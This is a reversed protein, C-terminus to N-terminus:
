GSARDSGVVATVRTTVHVRNAPSQTQVVVCTHYNKPAESGDHGPLTHDPLRVQTVGIPSDATLLIAADKWVVRIDSDRPEITVDGEFGLHWRLMLIETAEGQLAVDDTVTMTDVNWVVNRDWRALGDYCAAGDVSVDGGTEDLRHVTIPAVGGRRQWGPQWVDHGPDVAADPMVTGIQLVNHGVGSSYHSGMLPHSYSPTGAEILIPVGRAIFNVHGRDQHDHQDMPHGGRVWVGSGDTRWSDRWDVRAAREYVAFLPPAAEDGVPPMARVALGALDDSPGDLLNGLAWRASLSGTCLAALSLFPRTGDAAKYAGGADFCNIVMDGPQFHSILWTPFNALFPHDIGRRDGAVAMAHATHLMSTVTFQAYGFGEEFEGQAGHSDLARMFNRVGLEYGDRHADVGLVLAARVLGETPLMWQNTVPNDGRIFWSRKTAWDDVVGAVEGELLTRLRGLLAEPVSGEPLLDLTDGIARVGLGTALWNGDKGEEPLRNGPAYLTWGPRQLPSWTAMEELQSAIRDRLVVDKTLRYSAAMLPLEAAVTGCAAFDSMALAFQERIEPELIENRGDLWTRHQGVEALTHARRVIPLAAAERADKVLTERATAMSADSAARDVLVGWGVVEPSEASVVGVACVLGLVIWVRFVGM